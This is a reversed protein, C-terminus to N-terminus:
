PLYRRGPRVGSFRALIEGRRGLHGVRRAVALEAVRVGARAAIAVAAPQFTAARLEGAHEARFAAEVDPQPHM